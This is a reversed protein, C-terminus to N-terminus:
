FTNSSIATKTGTPPIPHPPAGPSMPAMDSTSSSPTPGSSPNSRPSTSPRWATFQPTLVTRAVSSMASPAGPTLVSTKQDPIQSRSRPLPDAIDLDGPRRPRLGHARLCPRNLTRRFYPQLLRPHHSLRQRSLARCRRPHADANILSAPRRRLDGVGRVAGAHAM